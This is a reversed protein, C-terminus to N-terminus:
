KEEGQDSRSELVGAIFSLYDQFVEKGRKTLTYDTQASGEVIRRRKRVYGSQVLKEVHTYLAGDSAGLQDKLFNFSARGSRYVITLISLRTKEFFTGDFRTYLEDM